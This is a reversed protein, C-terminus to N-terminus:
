VFEDGFLLELKRQLKNLIKNTKKPCILLVDEKKFVIFDNLGNNVVTKGSQIKIMNGGADKFFQILV